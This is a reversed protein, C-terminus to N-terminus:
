AIVDANGADWEARTAQKATAVKERKVSAARKASESRKAFEARYRAIASRTDTGERMLFGIGHYAGGCSCM